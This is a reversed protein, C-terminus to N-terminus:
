NKFHRSIKHNLELLANRSFFRNEGNITICYDMDPFQKKETDTLKRVEM